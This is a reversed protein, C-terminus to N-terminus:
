WFKTVREPNLKIWERVIEIHRAELAMETEDSLKPPPEPKNDIVPIKLAKALKIMADPHFDIGSPYRITVSRPSYDEEAGGSKYIQKCHNTIVGMMIQDAFHATTTIEYNAPTVDEM